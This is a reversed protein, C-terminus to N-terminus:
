FAGLVSLKEAKKAYKPVLGATFRKKSIAVVSSPREM